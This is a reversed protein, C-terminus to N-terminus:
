FLSLTNNRKKSQITCAHKIKSRSGEAPPCVVKKQSPESRRAQKKGGGRGMLHFKRSSSFSRPTQTLTYPFSVSPLISLVFPHRFPFVSPVTHRDRDWLSFSVSICSFTQCFTKNEQKTKITICTIGWSSRIIICDFSEYGMGWFAWM